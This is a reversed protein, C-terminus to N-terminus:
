HYAAMSTDENNLNLQGYSPEVESNNTLASRTKALEKNEKEILM